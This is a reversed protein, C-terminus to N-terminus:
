ALPASFANPSGRGPFWNSDAKPAPFRWLRVGERAGQVVVAGDPSIGLNGPWADPSALVAVPKKLELDFL